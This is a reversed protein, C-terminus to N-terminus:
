AAAVARGLEIVRHPNGTTMSHIESDELGIRRMNEIQWELDKRGAAVVEDDRYWLSADRTQHLEEGAMSQTETHDTIAILGEAGIYEVTRKCVALDVHHGDFNLCPLLRGERAAELLAAPVPGLLKRLDDPRWPTRLFEEIERDRRAKAEGRWAHVFSRPMDNYLHDTLVSFRSPGIIAQIADILGLARDASREPNSREFHGLAIRVGNESLAEVLDLLRFGPAIMDEMEMADPALVLYRLGVRGLSAIRRWEAVSPMWAASRPTGGSPGLLPGEIAFGLINPFHDVDRGFSELLAECPQLWERRLFITPVVDLNRSQAELQVSGLETPHLSSFDHEGMGHVHFLVPRYNPQTPTGMM